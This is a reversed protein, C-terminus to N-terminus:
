RRTGQNTHGEASPQVDATTQELRDRAHALERITHNLIGHLRVYEGGLRAYESPLKIPGYQSM